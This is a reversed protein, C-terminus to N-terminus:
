VGHPSNSAVFVGIILSGMLLLVSSNLFAEHLVAGCRMGKADPRKQPAALKVLLLGVIIAPSEMLALAAVM